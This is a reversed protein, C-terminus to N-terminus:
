GTITSRYGALFSAISMEKKGAPKLKDIELANEGTFFILSNGNITFSGATGSESVVHAATIIVVKDKIQTTSNPWNIYARIEREIQEATKHWDIIGDAKNLKRSYSPEADAPQPYAKLEGNLYKPIDEALMSDSLPILKATLSVNDLKDLPLQKQDLLQGTDMGEDILMLSVGTLSQGSLISFTIPDAGRWEPLLSVHSNVIGLPFYEIVTKSVIIGYDVLIGVRSKFYATKFFQDLETRKAFTYTKLGLKTSVDIVPVRDKHSKAPKTIVAEINFNNSLLELARAAVPGSGFFVITESIKKM